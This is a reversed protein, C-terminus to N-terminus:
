LILNFVSVYVCLCVSVDIAILQQLVSFSWILLSWCCTRLKESSHESLSSILPLCRSWGFNIEEDIKQERWISHLILSYCNPQVKMKIKQHHKQKLAGFNCRGFMAFLSSLTLVVVGAHQRTYKRESEKSSLKLSYKYQHKIQEFNSKTYFLIKYTAPSSYILYDNSSDYVEVVPWRARLDIDGTKNKNKLKGEAFCFLFSILFCDTSHKILSRFRTLISSTHNIM